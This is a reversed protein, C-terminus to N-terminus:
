PSVTNLGLAKWNQMGGRFYKINAAPYGMTLLKKIATPSQACWIGNCYMVLTKANSFNYVDGVLVNFQDEMVEAADETKKFATFPINVAGPILGSRKVWAPTRSDIIIISDDGASFQKLYDIMELEGITEVAHPEFPHMKQIKGRHTPKYFDVIENDRNQDRMLTVPKGQHKLDISKVKWSIFVDKTPAEENALILPSVLLLIIALVSFKM